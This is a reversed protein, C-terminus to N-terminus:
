TSGQAINTVTLAGHGTLAHLLLPILSFELITKM